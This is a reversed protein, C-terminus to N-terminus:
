AVLPHLCRASRRDDSAPELDPVRSYCDESVRWCRTTFPCGPPRDGASPAGGELVIRQVAAGMLSPTASFLAATYPHRPRDTVPAAPGHEVVHGLYMVAVEDALYRVTQIDHSIYIMALDLESRLDVLLNLVQARVSVDLASTPEDAILYRPQLALARAIAVRQRQGGSLEGPRREAASAPLRVLDLLEAVRHAREAKTGQRQIDMPDQVIRAVPLRPNLSSAPDQFVVAVSEALLATRRAAPVGWVDAGDLTVSGASPRQMGALVRAFTSKGCGSEGVLGTVRGPRLEIDVGALVRVPPRGRRSPYDVVVGTAMLSRGEHTM